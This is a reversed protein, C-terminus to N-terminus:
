TCLKNDAFLWVVKQMRALNLTCVGKGIVRGTRKGRQAEGRSSEARWVEWGNGCSACTGHAPGIRSGMGGVGAGAGATPAPAPSPMALTPLFTSAAAAAAAAAASTATAASASLSSDLASGGLLSANADGKGNRKVDFTPDGGIASSDVHAIVVSADAVGAFSTDGANVVGADCIRCLGERLM